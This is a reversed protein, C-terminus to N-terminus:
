QQCERFIWAGHPDIGGILPKELLPQLEDQAKAGTRKGSSLLMTVTCQWHLSECYSGALLCYSVSGGLESDSDTM